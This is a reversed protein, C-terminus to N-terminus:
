QRAGHGVAYAGSGTSRHSKNDKTEILAQTLEARMGSESVINIKDLLELVGAKIDYTGRTATLKTHSNNAETLTGDITTLRVPGTQRFDQEAKLARM